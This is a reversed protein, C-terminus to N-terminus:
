LLYLVVFISIWLGDVFHWYLAAIRIRQACRQPEHEQMRAGRGRLYALVLIGGALHLAHLLTLVYYLGLFNNTAPGLGAGLKEAYEFGKIGLFALGLLITLALNKRSGAKARQAVAPVRRLGPPPRFGSSAVNEAGSAMNGSGSAARAITASSLLLIFTNIAGLPMNLVASQDPWTAAGTRLLAYASFLSGFLMLESALFLWIGLQPNTVGTDPRTDATYPIHV